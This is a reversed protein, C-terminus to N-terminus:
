QIAEAIQNLSDYDVFDVKKNYTEIFAKDEQTLSETPKSKVSRYVMKMMIKHKFHLKGYDIGGRLHFVSLSKLLHEPVQKRVSNRINKINETDSVDALGVTM